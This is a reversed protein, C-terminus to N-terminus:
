GLDGENCAFEKGASGGPFGMMYMFIMCLQLTPSSTFKGWVTFIRKWINRLIVDGFKDWNYSYIFCM